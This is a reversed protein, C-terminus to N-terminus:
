STIGNSSIANREDCMVFCCKCLKQKNNTIQGAGSGSGAESEISIKTKTVLSKLKQWQWIINGRTHSVRTGQRENRTTTRKTLKQLM